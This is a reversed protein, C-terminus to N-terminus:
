QVAIDYRDKVAGLTYSKTYRGPVLIWSDFKRVFKAIREIAVSIDRLLEFPLSALPAHYPRM